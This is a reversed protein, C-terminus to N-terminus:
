SLKPAKTFLKVRKHSETTSFTAHLGGVKGDGGGRGEAGQRWNPMALTDLVLLFVDM